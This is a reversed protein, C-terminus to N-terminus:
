LGREGNDQATRRDIRRRMDDVEARLSAVMEALFAFCFLLAGVIM